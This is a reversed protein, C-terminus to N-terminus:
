LDVVLKVGLVLCEHIHVYLKSVHMEGGHGSLIEYRVVSHDFRNLIGDLEPRREHM